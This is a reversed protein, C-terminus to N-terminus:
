FCLRSLFTLKTVEIVAWKAAFTLKWLRVQMM